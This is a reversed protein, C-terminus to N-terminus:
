VWQFILLVLAAAPGVFFLQSLLIWLFFRGRLSTPSLVSKGQNMVSLLERDNMALLQAESLNLDIVGRQSGGTTFGRFVATPHLWLSYGFAWLSFLGVPMHRWMGSALEWGAIFAEGKWSTDQDFLVHEIDHIHVVKQRFKPNPIRLNIGFAKFDFTNKTAGGGEPLGNKAYFQELKQALIM